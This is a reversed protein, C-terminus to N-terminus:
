IHILSLLLRRPSSPRYLASSLTGLAAGTAGGFLRSSLDAEGVLKDVLGPKDEENLQATKEKSTSMLGRASEVAQKPRMGRALFYRVLEYAPDSAAEIADDVPTSFSYNSTDGVESYYNDGSPNVSYTEVEEPDEATPREPIDSYFM